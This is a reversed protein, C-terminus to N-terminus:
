DDEQEEGDQGEDKGDESYDIDLEEDSDDPMGTGRNLERMKDEIAKDAFAELEEDEGDSNLMDDDIDTKKSIKPPKMEFYKTM